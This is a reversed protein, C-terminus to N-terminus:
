ANKGKELQELTRRLQENKNLLEAVLGQLHSNRVELEQLREQLALGTMEVRENQPPLNSPNSEKLLPM